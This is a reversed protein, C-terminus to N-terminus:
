QRYGTTHVEVRPQTGSKVYILDTYKKDLKNPIYIKRRRLPDIYNKFNIKIEHTEVFM